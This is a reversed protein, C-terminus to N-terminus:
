IVWNKNFDSDMEYEEYKIEGEPIGLDRRAVVRECKNLFKSLKTSAESLKEATSYVGVNYVIANEARGFYLYYKLVYVKM